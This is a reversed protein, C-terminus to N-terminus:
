QHHCQHHQHHCPSTSDHIKNTIIDSRLLFVCGIDVKTTTLHYVMPYTPIENKRMKYIPVHMWTPDADRLVVTQSNLSEAGCACCCLKQRRILSLVDANNGIVHRRCSWCRSLMLNNKITLPASNAAGTSLNCFTSQCDRAVFLNCHNRYCVSQFCTWPLAHTWRQCKAM